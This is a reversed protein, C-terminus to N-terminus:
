IESYRVYYYGLGIMEKMAEWFSRFSDIYQNENWWLVDSGIIKAELKNEKYQFLNVLYRIRKSHPPDSVILVRKYNHELMYEKIKKIEAYTNQLNELFIIAKSPIGNKEFFPIKWFGIKDDNNSLGIGPGTFMLKDAFGDKYLEIGKNLREIYGGGLCVILDAKQPAQTVDTTKAFIFVLISFLFLLILIIKLKM